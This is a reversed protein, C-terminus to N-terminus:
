GRVFALAERALARADAGEALAVWERVPTGRAGAFPEGTGDAVLEAVRPAPLKLVLSGGVEMAFIRGDVKLASSGFGRGSGPRQVDPEGLADALADLDM